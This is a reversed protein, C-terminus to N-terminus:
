KKVKLIVAVIILLLIICISVFVTVSMGFIKKPAKTETKIEEQPIETGKNKNIVNQATDKAFGFVDKMIKKRKAKKEEGTVADTEFEFQEPSGAKEGEFDKAVENSGDLNDTEGEYSDGFTNQMVNKLTPIGKMALALNEKNVPADINFKTFINKVAEKHEALIGNLDLTM